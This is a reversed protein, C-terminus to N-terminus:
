LSHTLKRALCLLAGITNVTMLFNAKEQIINLFLLVGQLEPLYPIYNPLIGSAVALLIFFIFPILGQGYDGNVAKGRVIRRRAALIRFASIVAFFLTLAVLFLYIFQAYNKYPIMYAVDGLDNIHAYSLKGIQFATSLMLIFCFLRVILQIFHVLGTVAKKGTSVAKGTAKVTGKAVAKSSNKAVQGSSSKSKSKPRSTSATKKAPAKVPKKKPGLGFVNRLPNDNEDGAVEYSGEERSERPPRKGDLYDTYGLFDTQGLFDTTSMDKMDDLKGIDEALKESNDLAKIADLYMTTNGSLLEGSAKTNKSDSLLFAKEDPSFEGDNKLYNQSLLAEEIDQYVDKKM